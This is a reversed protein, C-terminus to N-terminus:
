SKKKETKKSESKKDDKSKDDKSSDKKAADKKTGEKTGEKADEEVEVKATKLNMSMEFPYVKTGQEQKTKHSTVEAEKFFDSTEFIKKLEFIEAQTSESVGQVSVKGNEELIVRTLYVDDSLNKYLQYITDLSEMRSDLFEKLLVTKDDEKKLAEVQKTTDSYKSIMKELFANM